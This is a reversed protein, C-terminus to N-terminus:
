VDERSEWDFIRIDDLWPDVEGNTWQSIPTPGDIVLGVEHRGTKDRGKQRMKTIWGEVENERFTEGLYSVQFRGEVIEDDRESLKMTFVTSESEPWFATPAPYGLGLPPPSGSRIRLTQLPSPQKPAHARLYQFLMAAATVTVHPQIPNDCNDLGLEFWVELHHLRPFSAIIQLKDWPWDNQRTVDLRLDEILQCSERIMKLEDITVAQKRWEGQYDEDQHIQLERLTSGHRLIGGLSIAESAVVIKELSPSLEEYLRAVNDKDWARELKVEKLTKLKPLLKLAFNGSPATLRKLQSWDFNEVWYDEENGKLPYGISHEVFYTTENSSNPVRQEIGFPYEFLNLEELAPPREGNIFGFGCYERPSSYVVCGGSPMGIFVTLVRINPCSLLIHKLPQTVRKCSEANTYTAVVELSRLNHCGHLTFINRHSNLERNELALTHLRVNPHEKLTDLLPRPICSNEWTLDQLGTMRPLLSCVMALTEDGLGNTYGFKHFKLHHIASLLGQENIRKFRRRINVDSEGDGHAPLAIGVTHHQCYRAISHLWTNVLTVSALSAPSVERILDLIITVTDTNLSVLTSLSRDVAIPHRVPITRYHRSPTLPKKRGFMHGFLGNKFPNNSSTAITQIRM